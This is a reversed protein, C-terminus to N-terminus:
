GVLGQSSQEFFEELNISYFNDTDIDVIPVFETIKQKPFYYTAFKAKDSFIKYRTFKSFM